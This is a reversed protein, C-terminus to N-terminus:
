LISPSDEEFVAPKLSLPSWFVDNRQSNQELDAFQERRSDRLCPKRTGASQSHRAAAGPSFGRQKGRARNATEFKIEEVSYTLSYKGKRKEAFESRRVAVRDCSSAWARSRPLPCTVPLHSPVLLLCLTFAVSERWSKYGHSCFRALFGFITSLNPPFLPTVTSLSLVSDRNLSNVELEM